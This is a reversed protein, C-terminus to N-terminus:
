KKSDAVGHPTKKRRGSARPEKRDAGFRVREQRTRERGGSAASWGGVDGDRALGERLPSLGSVAPQASRRWIGGRQNFT